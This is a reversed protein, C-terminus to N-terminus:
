AAARNAARTLVDTALSTHVKGSRFAEDSLVSLVFPINTKVGEVAFNELAVSLRDLAADRTTGRAIVKAILPDYFPTVAGGEAYGTEVRIGEGVPPRFV